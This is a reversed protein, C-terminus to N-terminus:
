PQGAARGAQGNRLWLEWYENVYVAEFNREVFARAEPLFDLEHRWFILAESGAFVEIFDSDNIKGNARPLFSDIAYRWPYLDRGSWLSFSPNMSYIYGEGQQLRDLVASASSTHQVRQEDYVVAYTFPAATALFLSAAVLGPRWLNRAFTKGLATVVFATIVVVQPLVQIYYYNISSKFAFTLLVTQALAMLSLIKLKPDNGKLLLWAGAVLAIPIAPFRLCASRLNSIRLEMPVPPRDIAQSLVVDDIFGSVGSLAVAFILLVSISGAGAIAWSRVFSRLPPRAFLFEGAVLLAFPLLAVLKVMAAATFLVGIAFRARPDGPRWFYLGIAYIV